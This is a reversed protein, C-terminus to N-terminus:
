HQFDLRVQHMYHQPIFIVLNHIVIMRAMQVVVAHSEEMDRKKFNIDSGNRFAEEVHRLADEMRLGILGSVILLVIEKMVHCHKRTVALVNWEVMKPMQSKLGREKKYDKGVPRLAYPGNVGHLGSVTLM